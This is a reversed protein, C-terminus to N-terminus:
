PLSVGQAAAARELRARWWASTAADAEHAALLNPDPVVSRVALQGAVPRLPEAVVDGTLLNATELGCDFPLDPVAAALQLGAALGVSTEVASSIVAPLGLETLLRLCARPGGLPQQKLVVIDAAGLDRVRLPDAARRISEDAAIRVAGALRQRLEALEEVTRCPQEAYELDFGTLERLAAEAEAVSWAGNADVRIRVEPLAERVAAVRAVADDLSEGPAAVKIKVSRCGSERARVAAREPAIAPVIANVPVSWRVPEPYGLRATEM